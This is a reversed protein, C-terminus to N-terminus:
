FIRMQIQPGKLSQPLAPSLLTAMLTLSTIALPLTKLVGYPRLEFTKSTHLGLVTKSRRRQLKKKLKLSIGYLKRPSLVLSSRGGKLRSNICRDKVNKALLSQFANGGLTLSDCSM